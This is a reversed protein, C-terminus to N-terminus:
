CPKTVACCDMAEMPENVERSAGDVLVTSKVGQAAEVGFSWAERGCGDGCRSM